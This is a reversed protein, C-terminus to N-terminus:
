CNTEGHDQEESPQIQTLKAALQRTAQEVDETGLVASIVAIGSAGAQIVEKVNSEKIGGIAILPLSIEQHIRSLTELGALRINEKSSTPYISGVAIYDAGDARAQIAETLTATSCGIIRDLPLIKRAIAVPLDNQGLHLGDAEAALAIDLHDNVIFLVEKEACIKKIERAIQLLERKDQQKDRLQISKAGGRVVQRAIEIEHRGKLAQTDLIVYLGALKRSKNERLLKFVLRQEIEYLSFRAQKFTASNLVPPAEPLKAFEELVRLSEQVRRANAIALSPLDQRQGESPVEISVGVDEEVKRHALLQQQFPYDFRLLEHRLAKLQQSLPADNLLFRTIDELVRLGEAIRDLNADVLRLLLINM